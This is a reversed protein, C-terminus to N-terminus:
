GHEKILIFDVLDDKSYGHKKYIEITNDNDFVVWLLMRKVGKSQFIYHKILKSGIKQGRYHKQVLFNNLITTQGTTTRILFGKIEAPGKIIFVKRETIWKKVEDFNLVQESLKDFNDKFLRAIEEADAVTAETVEDSPEYYNSDDNNLRIFRHLQTYIKFGSVTFLEVINAINEIKGIIDIVLREDPLYQNILRKLNELSVVCYYLYYFSENKRFFLVGFDTLQYYLRKNYLWYDLKEADIFFNTFFSGGKEKVKQVLATIEEARHVLNM